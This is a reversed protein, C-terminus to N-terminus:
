RGPPEVSVARKDQSPCNSTEVGIYNAETHAEVSEPHFNGAIDMQHSVACLHDKSKHTQVASDITEAVKLHATPEAGHALQSAAAVLAMAILRM